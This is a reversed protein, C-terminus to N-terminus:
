SSNRCVHDVALLGMIASSIIGSAYGTIDGVFYLGPYRSIVFDTVELMPVSYELVPASLINARHNFNSDIQGLRDVFEAIESALGTPLLSSLNAYDYYPLTTDHKEFRDKVGNDLFDGLTQLLPMSPNIAHVSSVFAQGFAFPDDEQRDNQDIRRLIAFNSRGTGERTSSQGGLQIGAPTRFPVVQGAECTCFTTLTAGTRTKLAIQPDKVVGGTIKRLASTPFEFRVGVSPMVSVRQMPLESFLEAFLAASAKGTGVLLREAHYTFSRGGRDVCRVQYVGKEWTVSVARRAFLFEVGASRLYTEINRTVEIITDTGVHQSIYGSLSFRHSELLKRMRKLRSMYAPADDFSPLGFRELYAFARAAYEDDSRHLKGDSFMGAGGFGNVVDCATCHRCGNVHSAKCHRAFASEGQDIIALSRHQGQDLLELGAMLNAPGAGLLLIEYDKTHRTM